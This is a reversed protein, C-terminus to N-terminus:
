HEPSVEIMCSIPIRIEGDDVRDTKLLLTEAWPGPRSPLTIAVNLFEQSIPVDLRNTDVRVTPDSCTIAKLRFTENKSAKVFIERAVIEGPRRSGSYIRTPTWIIPREFSWRVHQNLRARIVNDCLLTLRVRANYQEQDKRPMLMTNLEGFRMPQKVPKFRHDPSISDPNPHWECQLLERDFEPVFRCKGCISLDGSFVPIMINKAKSVPLDLFAPNPDPTTLLNRTRWEFAIQTLPKDLDSSRVMIRSSRLEQSDGLKLNTVLISSEGPELIMKGMAARTCDCSAVFDYIRLRNSGSNTLKTEVQISKDIGGPVEGLRHIAPEVVLTGSDSREVFTKNGPSPSPVSASCGAICVLFLFGFKSSSNAM